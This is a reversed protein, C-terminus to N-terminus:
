TEYIALLGVYNLSSLWSLSDTSIPSRKIESAILSVVQQSFEPTSHHDLFGMFVELGSPTIKYIELVWGGDSQQRSILRMKEGTVRRDTFVLNTQPRNM